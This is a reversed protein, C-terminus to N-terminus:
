ESLTLETILDKLLDDIDAPMDDGTKKKFFDRAVEIPQRSRVQEMDPVDEAEEFAHEAAKAAVNIVDCFRSKKGEFLKAFQSHILPTVRESSPITVRVYCEEEDGVQSAFSMAEEASEGHITLVKRLPEIEVTRIQPVDGHKSIEVISVSHAFTETFSVALPTGCYRARDTLTQPMHIHGLALYDYYSGLKTLSETEMGAVSGEDHGRLNCGEVAVHALMVIPLNGTNRAKAYEQLANFFMQMRSDEGEEIMPFYSPPFFPVALILGKGPVEVVFQNLLDAEDRNYTGIIHANQSLCLAKSAELRSGSDHNGATAVVVASPIARHLNVLANFFQKQAGISPNNFHFIDGCIVIADPQEETAIKELQSLFHAFEDTRDYVSFSHGLHWDSTHLIKM